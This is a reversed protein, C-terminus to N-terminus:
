AGADAPWRERLERTYAAPSSGFHSKFDRTFHSPSAYGVEAAAESARLGDRLMRLRAEGLRVHKVFRMPAMRAVERFRHAFHSPSMAVQRALGEVTLPEAAHARIYAIADRIRADETRAARRLPGAHQSRLLRFIIERALLPTLVRREIPDDVARVLRLFADALPDDLRDVWADADDDPPDGGEDELQLLTEAVLDPEIRLGLSLYPLEPSAEAIVSTYALERTVFLYSGPSYTLSRGPPGGDQTPGLEITKSRQVIVAVVVGNSEVRQPGTPASSRYFYLDPWPALTRGEARARRAVEDRLADPIPRDPTTGM